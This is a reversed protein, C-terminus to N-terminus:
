HSAESSNLPLSTVAPMLDMRQVVSIMCYPLKCLQYVLLALLAINFQHLIPMSLRETVHCDRDCDISVLLVNNM